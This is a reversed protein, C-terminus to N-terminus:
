SRVYEETSRGPHDYSMGFVDSIVPGHSPGIGLTFGPRGMADVVSGRPEGAAASPVPLDAAGRHRARHEHTERGAIAM